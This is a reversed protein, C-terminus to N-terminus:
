RAGQMGGTHVIRLRTGDPFFHKALLDKIAFLLKGSYVPEVPLNYQRTTNECFATLTANRKGYGGQHYDHLIRWHNQRGTSPLLSQVLSELYGEGKLVAVGTVSVPNHGACILGALTAGSGVPVIIHDCAAADEEMLEAVGKLAHEQSGGEPIIVAEPHQKQLNELWIPDSRRAYTPKDVYQICAQWAALDRLMPTPNAAYNGRVLATFRIGLQMCLHGCAHLHNSFGGGFSIIHRCSGPLADLTYKLKRWKNGSIVPHILDDRKIQMSIREAGPWDPKFDILPSPTTLALVRAAAQSLSTDSVVIKDQM